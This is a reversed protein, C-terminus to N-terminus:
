RNTSTSFSEKGPTIKQSQLGLVGGKKSPAEMSLYAALFSQYM